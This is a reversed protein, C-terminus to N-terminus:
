PNASGDMHGSLWVQGIPKRYKFVAKHPVVPIIDEM